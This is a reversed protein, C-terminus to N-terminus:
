VRDKRTRRLGALGMLGFAMVSAAMPEPVGNSANNSHGESEVGRVAWNDSEFAAGTSVLTVTDFTMGSGFTFNMYRNTADSAQDGNALAAAAIQAAQTGTISYVTSGNLQFSLTNYSDMSGWYLGFYNAKTNEGETLSAVSFSTTESGHSGVSFYANGTSSHAPEAAVGSISTTYIDGAQATTLTPKSSSFNFTNVDDVTSRLVGAASATVSVAPVPTAQAATMAAVLLGAAMVMTKITKFSNM